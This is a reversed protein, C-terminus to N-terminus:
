DFPIIRLFGSSYCTSTLHQVIFCVCVRDFTWQVEGPLSMKESGQLILFDPHPLSLHSTIRASLVDHRFDRALFLAATGSVSLFGHLVAPQLSPPEQLLGNPTASGATCVITTEKCLSISVMSLNGIDRPLNQIYLTMPRTKDIQFSPKGWPQQTTDKGPQSFNEAARKLHKRKGM